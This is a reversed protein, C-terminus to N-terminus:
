RAAPSRRCANSWRLGIWTAHIGVVTLRPLGAGEVITFTDGASHLGRMRVGRQGAVASASASTASTTSCGIVQGPPQLRLLQRRREFHEARRPQSIRQRTRHSATPTAPRRTSPTHRDLRGPAPCRDARRLRGSISGFDFVETLPASRPRRDEPRRRAHARRRFPREMSLPPSMWRTRRVGGLSLGGKSIWASLERLARAAPPRHTRRPLPGASSNAALKGIDLHEVGLGFV